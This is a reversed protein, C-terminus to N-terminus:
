GPLLRLPIPRRGHRECQVALAAVREPVAAAPLNFGYWGDGFAAARDLAASAQESRLQRVAARGAHNGPTPQSGLM